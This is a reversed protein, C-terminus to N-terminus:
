EICWELATFCKLIYRPYFKPRRHTVSSKARGEYPLGGKSPLLVVSLTYIGWLAYQPKIKIGVLPCMVNICRRGWTSAVDHRQMSTSAVNYERWTGAPSYYLKDASKDTTSVLELSQPYVMRWEHIKLPSTIVSLIEAMKLFPSLKAKSWVLGKRFHPRSKFFLIQEWSFCIRLFCIREKRSSCIRRKLLSVFCSQCNGGRFTNSNPCNGQRFTYSNGM